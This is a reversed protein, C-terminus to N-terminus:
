LTVVRHLSRHPAIVLLGLPKQRNSVDALWWESTSDHYACFSAEGLAVVIVGLASILRRLDAQM